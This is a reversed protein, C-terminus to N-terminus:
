FCRCAEKVMQPDEVASTGLIVRDVGCKLLKGIAEMDRIGGGVEIPILVSNAIESIIDLNKLEGSAAGDLDVIHLRMAGLSQWNMAMGVPDDSFVTEMGYDGQYLRVCKGGRIDIAPIIEM